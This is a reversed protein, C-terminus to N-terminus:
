GDGRCLREYAQAIREWQYCGLAVWTADPIWTRRDGHVLLRTLEMGTAFYGGGGHLTHRNFVCDYALIPRHYPLVEILSPNTGGVSHGHLYAHSCARLAALAQPDFLSDICLIRPEAGYRALLERGLPTGSFNGVVVYRPQDSALFAEMMLDIHNEPEIRAVTLLYDGPELGFRQRVLAQACKSEIPLVHDNGYPIVSSTCQYRQWVADAIGQNDSIVAHACRIALAESWGLFWRKMGRWKERRSELGDVNVIIRRHGALMRMFPMFIGASVGMVIVADSKRYSALFSFLDYPVSAAGNAPLPLYRHMLRPADEAFRGNRKVSSGLVVMQHGKRALRPALQEVCTEFGGYRAPLGDTGIIAIRLFQGPAIDSDSAM